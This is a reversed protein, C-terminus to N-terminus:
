DLLDDFEDEDGEDPEEDSRGYYALAVAKPMRKVISGFDSKTSIYALTIFEEVGIADKLNPGPKVGAAIMANYFDQIFTSGKTYTQKIHFVSQGRPQRIEYFADLLEKGDKIRPALKKLESFYYGAPVRDEVPYDYRDAVIIFDELRPATDDTRFAVGQKASTNARGTLGGNRRVVPRRSMESM